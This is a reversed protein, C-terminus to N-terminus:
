LVDFAMFGACRPGSLALAFERWALKRVVVEDPWYLRGTALLTARDAPEAWRVSVPM